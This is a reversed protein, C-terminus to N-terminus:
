KKFPGVKNVKVKLEGVNRTILRRLAVKQDETIEESKLLKDIEGINIKGIEGMLEAGLIEAARKTDSIGRRAQASLQIEYQDNPDRWKILDNQEGFTLLFEDLEAKLSELAKIQSEAQERLSAAHSVDTVTFIGGGAINRQLTKCQVKRVCYNCEANLTEPPNDDPAAIIREAEARLWEYTEITDSRDFIVGVPDHRLLDFVVHVEDFDWGKYQIRIMLDYLRSQIMRRLEDSSINKRITKYDVVRIIKKGDREFYDLRDLIYSIPIEGISTVLPFRHKEEVSLVQVDSLDTRGFWSKLMAKGDEFVPGKIVVTAFIEKYSEKYYSFLLEWSAPAIKKMYVDRVYRELADHCATGLDAPM